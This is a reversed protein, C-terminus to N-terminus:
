KGAGEVPRKNVTAPASSLGSNMRGVVQDLLGPACGTHGHAFVQRAQVVEADHLRQRLRTM